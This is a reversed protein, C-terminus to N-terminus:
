KFSWGAYLSPGDFTFDFKGRANSKESTLEYRYYNYGLGVYASPMFAWEVGASANLLEGDYQDIKVKLLQAFGALRWNDALRVGGVVGITPLPVDVSASDSINGNPGSLSATIKTYHLGLLFGLENGGENIPSYRYAVRLVDSDFTSDVTSNVPFCVDGFDIRGTITRSGSRQLSVYSGEIGHRKNLRWLFQLDPLTKTRQVGLDGELSVETGLISTTADLRVTTEADARFAGVQITVSADWPDNAAHAGGAVALLAATALVRRIPM